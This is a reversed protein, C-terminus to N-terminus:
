KYILNLTKRNEVETFKNQNKTPSPKMKGVYEFLTKVVKLVKNM